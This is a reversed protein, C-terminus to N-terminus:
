DSGQQRDTIEPAWRIYAARMRLLGNMVYEENLRGRNGYVRDISVPADPTVAINPNIYNFSNKAAISTQITYDYENTGKVQLIGPKMDRRLTLPFEFSIGASSQKIKEHTESNKYYLTVSVDGFFRKLEATLGTDGFWFKGYTAKLSLDLPAFFYRYSGLFVERQLDLKKDRFEAAKFSLTHNGNVPTWATEIMGGYTDRMLMGANVQTMLNPMILFAQNFLAQDLASNQRENRFALYGNKYELDYNDSWVMPLSYEANVIAGRWLNLFLNSNFYLLYDYRGIETGIHNQLKPYLVLSSSLLTSNEDGKVFSVGDMDRRSVTTTIQLNDLIDQEHSSDRLFALYAVNYGRVMLIPIDTKKMVVSFKPLEVPAMKTLMGLVVGLGDLENHNYRNNEYEVFLSGSKSGVRVNQFGDKILSQRLSELSKMVSQKGPSDPKESGSLGEESLGAGAPLLNPVFTAPEHKSELSEESVIPKSNQRDLGLPIELHFSFDINSSKGNIRNKATVGLNFPIKFLGDPTVLRIGVSTDVTDYEGLLHLWDFLKFEGGGFYGKLRDPGTGYGATLRFRWLKESVVLYKSRFYAVGGGIDQIGVAAQPLYDPIFPVQLKVNSSIDNSTASFRGGLEIFPLISLSLLHDEERVLTAGSKRHDHQKSYEYYLKGNDNVEATPINLLGTYGQLSLSNHFDDAMGQFPFWLTIIVFVTCSIAFCRYLSIM